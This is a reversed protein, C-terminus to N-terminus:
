TETFPAWTPRKTTAEPCDCVCSEEGSEIYCRCDCTPTIEQITSAELNASEVSTETFPAWTPRTVSVDPCNCICSDEGSEIFCTCHCSPDTEKVTKPFELSTETIPSFTPQNKFGDNEGHKLFCSYNCTPDAEKVTQPLEVSTETIPSWTSKNGFADPCYCSCSDEGSEIFCTCDCSSETKPEGNKHSKNLVKTRFQKIPKTNLLFITETKMREPKLLSKITKKGKRLPQSLNFKTYSKTTTEAPHKTYIIKMNKPNTSSQCDIDYSNVIQQKEDNSLTLSFRLRNAIYLYHQNCDESINSMRRRIVEDQMIKLKEELTIRIRDYINFTAFADIQREINNNEDKSPIADKVKQLMLEFESNNATRLRYKGVIHGLKNTFLTDESMSSFNQLTNPPPCDVHINHILQQKEENTETLFKSLRKALHILYSKCGSTKLNLRKNVETLHEEIQYEFKIRETDYIIFKRVLSEKENTQWKTNIDLCKLITSNYMQEFELNDFIHGPIRNTYLDRYSMLQMDWKTKNLSQIPTRFAIIKQNKQKRHENSGSRFLEPKKHVLKINAKLKASPKSLRQQERTIPVDSDIDLSHDHNDTVKFNRDMVM